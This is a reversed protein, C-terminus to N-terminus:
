RKLLGANPFYVLTMPAAIPSNSQSVVFDLDTIQDAEDACRFDTRPCITKAGILQRRRTRVLLSDEVRETAWQYALGGTTYIIPLAPIRRTAERALQWGSLDGRLGAETVMASIQSGREALVSLAQQSNVAVIVDYGREELLAQALAMILPEDEVFLILAPPM